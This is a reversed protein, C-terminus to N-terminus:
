FADEKTNIKIEQVFINNIIKTEVSINNSNNIIKNVLYLGNGRNKGKTTYGKKGITNLDVLRNINNSIIIFIEEDIAYIEIMISSTKDKECEEIANDLYVGVIYSLDKRMKDTLKNFLKRVGSSIDINYNIKKKNIVCIKYYILGRLGGKPINNIGKINISENKYNKLIEDIYKLVKKNKAMGKIVALQNKHEHRILKDNELKEEYTYAYELLNNYKNMLCVYKYREYLLIYFSICIIITFMILAITHIFIYRNILILYLFLIISSILFFIVLLNSLKPNNEIKSLYKSTKQNIIKIRTFLYGLIITFINATTFYIINNEIHKPGLLVIIESLIIIILVMISTIFATSYKIDFIKILILSLFLFKIIIQLLAYKENYTIIIVTTYLIVALIIQKKDCEYERKLLNKSLFISSLTSIFCLSIKSLLGMLM